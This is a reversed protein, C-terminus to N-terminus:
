AIRSRTAGSDDVGLIRPDDHEALSAARIARLLTDPSGAMALHHLVRAGAEGGLAFGILEFAESLRATRRAYPAVIGPLREGLLRRTCDANACVFRRVTLQVSVAIGHWPLDALTRVYRSHVRSSAIGCLPCASSTPTTAMLVTIASADVRLLDLRLRSPDPLLTPPM